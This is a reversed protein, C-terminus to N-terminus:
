LHSRKKGGLKPLIEDILAAQKESTQEDALFQLHTILLQRNTELKYLKRKLKDGILSWFNENDKVIKLIIEPDDRFKKNFHEIAYARKSIVEILFDKHNKLRDSAFIMLYEDICVVKKIFTENDKLSKSAFGLVDLDLSIAKEIFKEDSKLRPSAFLMEQSGKHLILEYVVDEDDRFSEMSSDSLSYCQANKKIHELVIQKDVHEMNSM